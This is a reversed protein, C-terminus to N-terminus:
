RAFSAYSRAFNSFSTNRRMPFSPHCPVDMFSITTILDNGLWQWRSKCVDYPRGAFFERMMRSVAHDVGLVVMEVMFTPHCHRLTNELFRYELSNEYQQIVNELLALLVADEPDRFAAHRTNHDGQLLVVDRVLGKIGDDYFGFLWDDRQFERVIDGTPLIFQPNL